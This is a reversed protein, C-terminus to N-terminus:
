LKQAESNISTTMRTLIHNWSIKVKVEKKQQSYSEKPKNDHYYSHKFNSEMGAGGVM